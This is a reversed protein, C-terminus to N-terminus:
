FSSKEMHCQGKGSYNNFLLTERNQLLATNPIKLTSHWKGQLLFFRGVHIFNALNIPVLRYLSNIHTIGRLVKMHKHFITWIHPNCVTTVIEEMVVYLSQSNSYYVNWPLDVHWVCFLNTLKLSHSQFYQAIGM